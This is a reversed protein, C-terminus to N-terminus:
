NSVGNCAILRAKTFGLHALNELWRDKPRLWAASGKPYATTARHLVQIHSRLDCHLLAHQFIIEPM